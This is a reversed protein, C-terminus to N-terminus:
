AVMTSDTFLLYDLLEASAGDQSLVKTDELDRLISDIAEAAGSLHLVKACAAHLALYRRDPLDLDTNTTFTVSPPLDSHIAPYRRRINYTHEQGQMRDFTILFLAPTSINVLM